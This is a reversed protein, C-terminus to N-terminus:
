RTPGSSLERRELVNGAADLASVAAVDTGRSISVPAVYFRPLAPDALPRPVVEHATGNRLEVRVSVVDDAVPGFVLGVGGGRSTSAVDYGVKSPETRGRMPRDIDYGCGGSRMGLLSLEACVGVDSRYASIQWESGAAVEVPASLRVVPPPPLHQHATDEGRQASGNATASATAAALVATLAIGLM